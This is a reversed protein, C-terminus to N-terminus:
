LGVPLVLPASVQELLEQVFHCMVETAPASALEVKLLYAVGMMLDVIEPLRELAFSFMVEEVEVSTRTRALLHHLM